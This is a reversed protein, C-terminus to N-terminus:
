QRRDGVGPTDLFAKVNTEARAAMDTFLARIEGVLEDRPFEKEMVEIMLACMAPIMEEAKARHADRAAMVSPRMYKTLAQIRLVRPMVDRVNM